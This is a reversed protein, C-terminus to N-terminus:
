HGTFSIGHSYSVLAVVFDLLPSLFVFGLGSKKNFRGVIEHGFIGMVLLPFYEVISIFIWVKPTM